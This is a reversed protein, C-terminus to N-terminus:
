TVLNEALESKKTSLANTSCLSKAKNLIAIREKDSIAKGIIKKNDFIWKEAKLELIKDENLKTGKSTKATELGKLKKKITTLEKKLLQQIKYDIVKVLETEKKSKKFSEKRLELNGFSK